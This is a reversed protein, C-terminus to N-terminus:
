CINLPWVHNLFFFFKPRVQFNKENRTTRPSRPIITARGMITWDFFKKVLIKNNICLELNIYYLIWFRLWFFEWEQTGKFNILATWQSAIWFVIVMAAQFLAKPIIAFHVLSKIWKQCRHLPCRQSRSIETLYGWRLNLPASCENRKKRNIFSLHYELFHLQAM